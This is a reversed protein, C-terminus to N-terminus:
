ILSQEIISLFFFSTQIPRIIYTHQKLGTHGTHRTIATYQATSQAAGHEPVCPSVHLHRNVTQLSQLWCGLGNEYLGDLAFYFKGLSRSVCLSVCVCVGNSLSKWVNIAMANTSDYLVRQTCPRARFEYNFLFNQETRKKKHTQACPTNHIHHVPVYWVCEMECIYFFHFVFITSM